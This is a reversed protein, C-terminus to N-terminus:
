KGLLFTRARKRGINKKFDEFEIIIRHPFTKKFYSIQEGTVKKRFGIYKFEVGCNPCRKEKIDLGIQHCSFCEGSLEGLVILHKEIEELSLEEWVRLIVKM